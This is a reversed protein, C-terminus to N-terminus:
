FSPSIFVLDLLFFFPFFVPFSRNSALPADPGRSGGFVYVAPWPFERSIALSDVPDARKKQSSNPGLWQGSLSEGGCRM